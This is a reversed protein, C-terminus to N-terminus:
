WISLKNEVLGYINEFDYRKNSEDICYGTMTLYILHFGVEGIVLNKKVYNSRIPNALVNCYSNLTKDPVSEFEYGYLKREEDIVLKKTKVVPLKHLKGNIFFCDETHQSSTPNNFGHGINLGIYDNEITRGNASAWFWGSNIPWAGKGSDHTIILDKADYTKGNIEVSGSALITNMKMNFYFLTSDESIPNFTTISDYGEAYLDLDINVTINSVSANISYHQDNFKYPRTQNYQIVGDVNYQAVTCKSVCYDAIYPKTLPNLYDSAFLQSNKDTLDSFHMLFGGVYSIDFVATLLVFDKHIFLMAEWKKYRLSNLIPVISTSPRINEKNFMFMEYKRSWGTQQLEGNETLVRTHDNVVIEVQKSTHDKDWFMLSPKSVIFLFVSVVFTIITTMYIMKGIM